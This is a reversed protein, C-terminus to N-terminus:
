SAKNPIRSLVNKRDIYDLYFKLSDPDLSLIQLGFGSSLKGVRRERRWITRGAGRIKAVPDRDMLQLDFTVTSGIEPIDFNQQIFLGESGFSVENGAELDSLTEFKKKILYDTSKLPLSWRIERSLFAKVIMKKVEAINFPKSFFGDAGRAYAEESDMVVNGSIFFFRPLAACTKQLSELLFYGDGDPMVIDSIVVNVPYTKMVELAENGSSATKVHFGVDEFFASLVMRMDEEDDVVLIKIDKIDMSHVGVKGLHDKRCIPYLVQTM